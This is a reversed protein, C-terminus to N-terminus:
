WGQGAGVGEHTSKAGQGLSCRTMVTTTGALRTEATRAAVVKTAFPVRVSPPDFEVIEVGFRTLLVREASELRGSGSVMAVMPVGALEGAFERVSAALFAASRALLGGAALTVISLPGVTGGCRAAWRRWHAVTVAASTRSEDHFGTGLPPSM